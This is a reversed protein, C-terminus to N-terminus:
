NKILFYLDSLITVLYEQGYIYEWNNNTNSHLIGHPNDEAWHHTNHFNMIEDRSNWEHIFYHISFTSKCYIDASILYFVTIKASFWKRSIDTCTLYPISLASIRMFNKVGDFVWYKDNNNNKLYQYWRKRCRSRFNM